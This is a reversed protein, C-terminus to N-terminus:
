EHFVDTTDLEIAEEFAERERDIEKLTDELLIEAADDSLEGDKYQQYITIREEYDVGLDLDEYMQDLMSLASQFQTYHERMYAITDERPIVPYGEVYEIDLTPQPDLVIQLPGSLEERPQREFATSLDFSEFFAQWDDVDQERVALFLPYDGPDRAVQYGGQTWVYVADIRSYAFPWEGYQPIVYAEDISPPSIAASAAVLEQASNRVREDVVSLGHDYEVYGAEELRNVAQRVTEYPTQIHQAVRRISDGSEVALIIQAATDDFVEHM